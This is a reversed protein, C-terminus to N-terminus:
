KEVAYTEMSSELEYLFALLKRELDLLRELKEIKENMLDHKKLAM